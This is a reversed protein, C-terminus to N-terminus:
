GVSDLNSYWKQGLGEQVGYAEGGTGLEVRIRQGDGWNQAGTRAWYQALPRDYSNPTYTSYTIEQVSKTKASATATASYYDVTTPPTTIMLSYDTRGVFLIERSPRGELDDLPDSECIGAKSLKAYPNPTSFCDLQQGTRLDITILSTHKSGTFIRNPSQPFTFPSLDIRHYPHDTSVFPHTRARRYFHLRCVAAGRM